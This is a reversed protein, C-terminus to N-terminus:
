RGPDARAPVPGRRAPRDAPGHRGLRADDLRLRDLLGRGLGAQEGETVDAANAALIAPARETLLAAM